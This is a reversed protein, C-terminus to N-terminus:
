FLYSPTRNINVGNNISYSLFSLNEKLWQPPRSIKVDGPDFLGYDDGGVKTKDRIEKIAEAISMESAFRMM